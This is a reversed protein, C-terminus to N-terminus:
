DSQRPDYQDEDHREQVGNKYSDRPPSYTRSPPALSNQEYSNVDGSSSDDEVAGGNNGVQDPRGSYSDANTPNSNEDTAPQNYNTNQEPVYGPQNGPDKWIQRELPIDEFKKFELDRKRKEAERLEKQTEALTKETLVQQKLNELNAQKLYKNVVKDVVAQPVPSKKNNVATNLQASISDRNIYLFAGAVFVLSLVLLYNLISNLDKVRM